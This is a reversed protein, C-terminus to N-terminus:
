EGSNYRPTVLCEDVRDTPKSRLQIRYRRALGQPDPTKLM